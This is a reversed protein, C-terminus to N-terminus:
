IEGDPSSQFDLLDVQTQDNDNFANFVMPNVTLRRWKTKKKGLDVGCLKLFINMAEVSVNKYQLKSLDHMRNRRDPKLDIHAKRIIDSLEEYTQM